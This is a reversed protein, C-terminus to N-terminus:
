DLYFCSREDFMSERHLVAAIILFLLLFFVVFAVFELQINLKLNYMLLFISCHDYHLHYEIVALAHIIVLVPGNWESIWLHRSVFRYCLWGDM